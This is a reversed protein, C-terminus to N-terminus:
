LESLASEELINYIQTLISTTTAYFCFTISAYENLLQELMFLGVAAGKKSLEGCRKELSIVNEKERKLRGVAVWGVVM